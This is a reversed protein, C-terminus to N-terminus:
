SRICLLRWGLQQLSSYIICDPLTMLWLSYRSIHLSHWSPQSRHAASKGGRHSPPRPQVRKVSTGRGVRTQGPHQWMQQQLLKM